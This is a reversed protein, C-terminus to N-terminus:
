SHSDQKNIYNENRSFAQDVLDGYPEFKLKNRNVVDQVGQESLKKWLTISQSM